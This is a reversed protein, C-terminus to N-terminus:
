AGQGSYQLLGRKWLLRGIVFFIGFWVAEIAFGQYLAADLVGIRGTLIRAPFDIFYPFPTLRLIGAVRPSFDGLPIIMGSLFWYPVMSLQDLASAREFWFAMMGICYQFAFRTAFAAYIAVIGAGFGGSSPLWLARPYVCFFLGVIVAVLPFRAMQEAAHPALFNWVTGMPKLLFYSLRGEVVRWEFDYIFWVLTFQRVIFVALFYRSYELATM